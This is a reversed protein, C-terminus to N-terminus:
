SKLKIGDVSTFVTVVTCKVSSLLICLGKNTGGTCKNAQAEATASNHRSASEAAGDRKYDIM